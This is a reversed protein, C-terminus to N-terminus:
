VKGCLRPAIPAVLYIDMEDVGDNNTGTSWGGALADHARADPCLLLIMETTLSLWFGLGRMILLEGSM